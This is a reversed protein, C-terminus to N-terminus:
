SPEGRSSSLPRRPDLLQRLLDETRSSIQKLLRPGIGREALFQPGVWLVGISSDGRFFQVSSDGAPQTHWSGHWGDHEQNLADAIAELRLSDTLSVTSDGPHM